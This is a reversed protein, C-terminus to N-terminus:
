KTEDLFQEFLSRLELEPGLSGDSLIPTAVYGRSDVRWNKITVGPPGREGQVGSPGRPGPEGSKGQRGPSTLLQWGEGPCTGPDDRKAIFSGNNLACIDLQRYSEEARWTGRVTPSAGDAGDRGGLALPTWDAHPPARGTDRQAQWSGGLHSVVDGSYHVTDAEFGKILPLRGMPGVEGQPGILGREGPPGALGPPGPEGIAGAPGAIGQPGMGGDMGKIGPAGPQGAPGPEGPAGREGPLGRHGVLGPLGQPGAPGIEGPDGKVSLGPEGQAGVAGPAGPQGPPGPEGPQGVLGPPGQPGAPGIEGPPGVPGAAGSPGPDGQPGAPGGLGRDGAVGAVGPLGAAGAPGEPGAPGTDGQAGKEGPPGAQGLLGPLGADGKAGSEGDSGREGQPGQPGPEGDKGDHLAGLRVAILADAEAIKQLVLAHLEQMKDVYTLRLNAVDREAQTQILERERIWQKREDALTKGLIDRWGELLIDAEPQPPATLAIERRTSDNM